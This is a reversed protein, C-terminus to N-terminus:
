GASQPLQSAQLHWEGSTAQLQCPSDVPLTLPDPHHGFPLGFIGPVGLRRCWGALVADASPGAYGPPLDVPFLGGVLGAVGDLMGALHLQSLFRDLRYPREDVDEIALIRGRLDPQVPTGVLAALLSLCAPFLRGVAEGVQLVRVEPYQLPDCIIPQGGLCAGLSGLARPGHAAAPMPGHLGSPWGQRQWLAHLVTLDSFGILRGPRTAPQGAMLGEVLDLCGHGGRIAWILEHGLARQLDALRVAAPLWNGPGPLPGDLVPSVALSFGLPEIVARAVEVATSVATSSAPVFAPCALYCSRRTM